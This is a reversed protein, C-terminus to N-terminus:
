FINTKIIIWRYLDSRIMVFLSSLRILKQEAMVFYQPANFGNTLWQKNM